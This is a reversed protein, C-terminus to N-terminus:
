DSMSSVELVAASATLRKNTERLESAPLSYPTPPPPPALLQGLPEVDINGRRKINDAIFHRLDFYNSISSFSVNLILQSVHIKVCGDVVTPPPM